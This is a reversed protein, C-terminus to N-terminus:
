RGIPASRGRCQPSVPPAAGPCELVKLLKRLSRSNAAARVPDLQECIALAGKVKHYGGKRSCAKLLGLADVGDARNPAVQKEIREVNEFMAALVRLGPPDAVLWNEFKSVKFVVALTATTSHVALRERAEREVAQVLEGTCDQRTEKDILIVISDVGKSLLIPFKKSAALAMQAPSAFPQIDCVLPLLIQHPSGLRPIVHPLAHYETRGDVLLGIKM